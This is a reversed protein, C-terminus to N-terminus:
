KGRNILKTYMNKNAYFLDIMDFIMNSSCTSEGKRYEAIPEEDLVKTIDSVSVDLISAIKSLIDFTIDNEGNEIRAFKQRSVGLLDAIKEQTIKKATRLARIQKGLCKNM